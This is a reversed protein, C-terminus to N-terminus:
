QRTLHNSQQAAVQALHTVVSFKDANALLAFCAAVVEPSVASIGVDVEDFVL